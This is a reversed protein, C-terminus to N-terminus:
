EEPESEVLEEVDLDEHTECVAEEQRSIHAVVDPVSEHVVVHVAVDM